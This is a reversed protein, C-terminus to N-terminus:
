HQFGSSCGYQNTFHTIVEESPEYREYHMYAAKFGQQKLLHFNRVCTDLGVAGTVPKIEKFGASLLGSLVCGTILHPNFALFSELMRRGLGEEVFHPLYVSRKIPQPSCLLDGGTFLLDKKRELRQIAADLSFCTRGSDNVILTGPKVKEVDLVNPVNTAGIVLTAAYFEDPIKQTATISRIIGHFNLDKKLEQKLQEPLEGRHFVDFLIIEKPHPLCTLMLRLAATGISGLGVFGVKERSLQRRTDKLIREVNM